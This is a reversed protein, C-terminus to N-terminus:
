HLFSHHFSVSILTSSLFPPQFLMALSPPTLRHHLSKHLFRRGGLDVCVLAYASVSTYLFGCVCVCLCVCVCVFVCVCVWVQIKFVDGVGRSEQVWVM